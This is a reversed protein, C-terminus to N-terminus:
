KSSFAVSFCPVYSFEQGEWKDSSPLTSVERQPLTERGGRLVPPPLHSIMTSPSSDGLCFENFYGEDEM